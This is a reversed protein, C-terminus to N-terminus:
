ARVNGTGRGDGGAPQGSPVEPAGGEDAGRGDAPEALLAQHRHERPPIGYAAKFARSFESARPLGCAVAILHVPVGRLAPDALDRHAKQLRQRRISAALTEGGCYRTFLHHLHSLSIHHAAAVTAPSLDPDHLNHRIFGRVSEMLARRQIEQPLAPVADLERAVWAAVLDVVVLGLRSSEAPQLSAARRELSLLFDALVAGTGERGSLRRGLLDRVRRGPVPLLSRPIDVGVATVEPGGGSPSRDGLMRVDHATSSDILALDGVRFTETQDQGRRLGHVGSTLLTLHYLEQDSRRVMRETRRFRASPFSSGLLVVPGLESWRLEAEFSDAHASTAECERTKGLTERWYEFRDKASM